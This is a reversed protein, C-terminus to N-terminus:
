NNHRSYDIKKYTYFPDVYLFNDDSILLRSRNITRTWNLRGKNKQGTNRETFLFPGLEIYDILLLYYAEFISYMYSEQSIQWITQLNEKKISSTNKKYKRLLNFYKIKQKLEDETNLKKDKIFIPLVLELKDDRVEFGIRNEKERAEM